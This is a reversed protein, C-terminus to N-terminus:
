GAVVLAAARPASLATLWALDGAGRQRLEVVSGERRRWLEGGSAVSNSRSYKQRLGFEEEATVFASNPQSELDHGACFLLPQINHRAQTCARM